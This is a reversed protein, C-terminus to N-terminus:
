VSWHVPETDKLEKLQYALDVCTLEKRASAWAYKKTELGLNYVFRCSGFFKALQHKQEDTPLLAYKFAKLLTFLPTFHVVLTSFINTNQDTTSLNLM